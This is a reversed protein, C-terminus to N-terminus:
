PKSKCKIRLCRQQHPSMMDLWSILGRREHRSIAFCAASSCSGFL